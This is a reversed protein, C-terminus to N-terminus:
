VLLKTEKLAKHIYEARKHPIEEPNIKEKFQDILHARRCNFFLQNLQHETIGSIWGLAVGLKCLSIANLAEIADIQYSYILIGYARSVKDLILPNKSQHISLRCKKEEILLKSTLSRMSAIINEETIGLSYNNQLAFVDGIIETPSGQMGMVNFDDDVEQELISEINGIHLLASLQLFTTVQLGTGCLDLSSTLYGFKPSFSYNYNKGLASELKIIKNWAADLDGNTDLVCFSLHDLLNFTTISSGTDDVIFAEGVDSKFYNSITLFHEVLYEKDFFNLEEAKLLKPNSSSQLMIHEKGVLNIIQQKREVDLKIPFKFKEINRQLSVSSALWISNENNLWPEKLRIVDPNLRNDEM